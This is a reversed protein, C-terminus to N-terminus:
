EQLGNVVRSIGKKITPCGFNLLLGLRLGTLRLYTLVQQRHVPPTSETAKIEVLVKNEVILDVRYTLGLPTGDYIVPVRVETRFELGKRALEVGLAAQYISELLGPGMRRHVRYAADVIEGSINNEHM